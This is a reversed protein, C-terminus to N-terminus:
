IITIWAIEKMNVSVAQCELVWRLYNHIDHYL